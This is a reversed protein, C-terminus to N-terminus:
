EIVLTFFAFTKLGDAEANIKISHIGKQAETPTFSIKGDANIDFLDTEDSFVLGTTTSEPITKVQYVFEKGVEARQAVISEIGLKEEGRQAVVAEQVVPIPEQEFQRPRLAYLYYYPEEKELDNMIVIYNGEDDVLYDFKINNEVAARAYCTLCIGFEADAQGMTLNNAISYLRGMRLSVEAAFSNIEYDNVKLPYDMEFFVSDTALTTKISANGREAISYGQLDTFNNICDKLLDSAQQGVQGQIFERTPVTFIDGTDNYSYYVPVISPIFVLDQILDINYYGGKLSTERIAMEGSTKLCKEIFIKVPAVENPVAAGSVSRVAGRVYLYTGISVLLVVGIIIFTAIQGRKNEM